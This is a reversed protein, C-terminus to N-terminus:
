KQICAYNWGDMPKTPSFFLEGYIKERQYDAFGVFLNSHAFFTVEQCMALHM